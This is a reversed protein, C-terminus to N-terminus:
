FHICCFSFAVECLLLTSRVCKSKQWSAKYPYSKKINQSFIGRTSKTHKFCRVVLQKTFTFVSLLFITQEYIQKGAYLKNFKFEIKINVREFVVM